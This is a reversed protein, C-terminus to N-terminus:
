FDERWATLFEGKSKWENYRARIEALYHRSEEDRYKTKHNEKQELNKGHVLM